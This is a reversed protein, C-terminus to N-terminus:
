IKKLLKVLGDILAEPRPPCGPVYASVPLVEDLPGAYGYGDRFIDGDIACSGFAVVFKPNSAQEYIKKLRDKVQVTVIGTVMLVDAHRPTGKQLVGFREIDYKPTLAAVIEIDCGNCGGCPVHMVWPSKRRAFSRLAKLM